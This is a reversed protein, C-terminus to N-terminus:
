ITLHADESIDLFLIQTFEFLFILVFYNTEDSRFWRSCRMEYFVNDRNANEPSEQIKM